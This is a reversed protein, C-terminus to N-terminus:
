RGQASAANRSRLSALFGGLLAFAFAAAIVLLESGAVPVSDNTALQYVALASCPLAALCGNILEHRTAIRGAVYGAVLASAFAAAVQLYPMKATGEIANLFVSGLQEFSAEDAKLPRLVYIIPLASLVLGLLYHVIGGALLAKLSIKNTM